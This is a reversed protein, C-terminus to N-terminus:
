LPLGGQKRIKVVIKKQTTGPPPPGEQPVSTGPAVTIVTLEADMDSRPGSVSRTPSISSDRAWKSPGLSLEEWVHVEHGAQDHFEVQTQSYSRLEDFLKDGCQSFLQRGHRVDSIDNAADVIAHLEIPHADLLSITM